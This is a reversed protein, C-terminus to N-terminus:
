DHSGSFVLLLCVFVFGGCVLFWATSPGLCEMKKVFIVFFGVPSPRTGPLGPDASEPRRMEPGRDSAKLCRTVLTGDSLASGSARPPAGGAWPHALLRFLHNTNFSGFNGSCRM